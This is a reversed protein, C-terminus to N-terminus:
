GAGFCKEVKIAACAGDAQVQGAFGGPDIADLDHFVGDEVGLLVGLAVLDFIDAKDLSFGFSASSPTWGSTM